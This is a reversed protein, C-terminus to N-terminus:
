KLRRNYDGRRSGWRHARYLRQDAVFFIEHPTVKVSTPVLSGLRALTRTATVAGSEDLESRKLANDTASYFYIAPSLRDADWIYEHLGISPDFVGQVQAASRTGEAPWSALLPAATEIGSAAPWGFDSRFAADFLRDADGQEGQDILRLEGNYLFLGGPNRIGDAYRPDFPTPNEFHNSGDFRYRLLHGALEADDQADSPTGCDPLAIYLSDQGPLAAILAQQGPAPLPLGSVIVERSPNFRDIVRVVEIGTGAADSQLVFILRTSFEDPFERVVEIDYIERLSGNGFRYQSFEGSDWGDDDHKFLGNAADLYFFDSRWENQNEGDAFVVGTGLEPVLEEIVWNEELVEADAVSRDEPLPRLFHYMAGFDNCEGCDTSEGFCGRGCSCAGICILGAIMLAISQLKQKLTLQRKWM